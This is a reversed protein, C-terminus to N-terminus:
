KRLSNGRYEFIAEHKIDLRAALILDTARIPLKKPRMNAETEMRLDHAALIWPSSFNSTMVKRAMSNCEKSFRRLAEKRDSESIQNHVIESNLALLEDPTSSKAARMALLAAVQELSGCLIGDM